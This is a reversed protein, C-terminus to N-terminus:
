QYWFTRLRLRGNGTDECIYTKKGLTANTGTPIQKNNVMCGLVTTRWGGWKGVKLCQILFSGEVWKENESRDRGNVKCLCYGTALLALVTFLVRM